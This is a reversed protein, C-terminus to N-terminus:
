AMRYCTSHRSIVGSLLACGALSLARLVAWSAVPRDLGTAKQETAWSQAATANPPMAIAHMAAPWVPVPHAVALLAAAAFIAALAVTAYAGRPTPATNGLATFACWAATALLASQLIGGPRQALGLWDIAVLLTAIAAVARKAPTVRLACWLAAPFAMVLDHEHWFSSVFPTLAAFAAFRAFPDATHKAVRIAFFVAAVAVVIAICLALSRSAGFGYAVALPTIQIASFREAATHAPLIAAYNGAWNWGAALVGLLYTVAIAIAVAVLARKRSIQSILAPVINPQAFTLIGGIAAPVTRRAAVLLCAGFAAVLAFQGLALDSTIPGFSIALAVTALGNGITLHVRTGRLCAFLLGGLACCLLLLWWPASSGYPARALISWLLLTAPPGVFPLVGERQADVGPVSREYNWIAAAYPDAHGNFAAGASWYAEFDRALPGSTEAPRAVFVALAFAVYAALIFAHRRNKM